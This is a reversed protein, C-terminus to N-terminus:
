SAHSSAIASAPSLTLSLIPSLIICMFVSLAIITHIAEETRLGHLDVEIIGSTLNMNFGKEANRVSIMIKM